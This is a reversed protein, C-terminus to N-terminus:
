SFVPCFSPLFLLFLHHFFINCPGSPRPQRLFLVSPFNECLFQPLLAFSSTLFPLHLWIFCPPSLVAGAIYAWFIFDCFALTAQYLLLPSFVTGALDAVSNSILPFISSLVSRSDSLLLSIASKNTSGLGAFLTCFPVPKLLFVQVYQAQLFPFLPRLAVFLATPLFAPAAKALLFPFLATQGSYWIMLLFLTLTPSFRVKALFFILATAHLPFPPIWRSRPCIGLLLSLACLFLRGLLLLLFCLPTLPRM